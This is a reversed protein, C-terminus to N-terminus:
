ALLARARDRLARGLEPDTLAFEVFTACYSEVTGIDYRDVGNPLRVAVIRAGEDLLLRLADTLQVEGGADPRTRALADFIAPALVYRAAVALTSPAAAASPKEVLTTVDVVRAALEPDLTTAAVGIDLPVGAVIGYRGVHARPVDRVAIAAVAGSAERAAALDAVITSPAHRGLIADGLAVAFPRDGAFGAGHAIADGLGRPHHQRASLVSVGLGEFALEALLDEKGDERLRRVLEPDPDFHDEIARKSRGTVLLVREIGCARLEEVVYQVVPKSGVPLMEKPMSKTAPLLRTGLGAVPVVADTVIAM